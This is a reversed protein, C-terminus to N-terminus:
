RGEAAVAAPEEILDYDHDEDLFYWGEETFPEGVFSEDSAATVRFPFDASADGMAVRIGTVKGDRTRYTKDASLKQGANALTAQKAAKLWDCMAPTAELVRDENVDLTKALVDAFLAGTLKLMEHLGKPETATLVMMDLPALLMAQAISDYFLAPNDKSTASLMAAHRAIASAMEGSLSKIVLRRPDNPPLATSAQFTPVEAHETM